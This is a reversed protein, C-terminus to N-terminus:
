ACPGDLHDVHDAAQPETTRLRAQEAEDIGAEDIRRSGM